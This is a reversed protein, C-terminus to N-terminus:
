LICVVWNYFPCTTELSLESCPLIFWPYLRRHSLNSWFTPYTFPLLSTTPKGGMLGDVGLGPVLHQPTSHLISEYVAQSPTSLQSWMSSARPWLLCPSCVCRHGPLGVERSPGLPARRTSLHAWNSWDHGVRQSVISQLGGPEETWPIRWAPVSSDTAM